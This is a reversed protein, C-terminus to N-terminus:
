AKAAFLGRDKKVFRAAKGKVTIERIMASYLTAAPTKGGPSKWLGKSEMEAVLDKVRMPKGAKALVQAAADVASTRKAAAPKGRKATNAVPKAPAPVPSPTAGSPGHAVTPRKPFRPDVPKAATPKPAAPKSAPPKASKKSSM